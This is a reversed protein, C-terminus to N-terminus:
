YWWTTSTVGVIRSTAPIGAGVRTLPVSWIGICPTLM